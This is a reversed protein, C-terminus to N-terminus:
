LFTYVTQGDCADNLIDLIENVDNPMPKQWEFGGHGPTSEPTIHSVLMEPSNAITEPLFPAEEVSLIDLSDKARSIAVYFIHFEEKWEDSWININTLGMENLMKQSALAATLAAKAAYDSPLAVLVHKWEKGKAGHITSVSVKDGPDNDHGVETDVSDLWARISDHTECHTVITRTVMMTYGGYEKAVKECDCLDPNQLMRSIEKLDIKEDNCLRILVALIKKAIEGTSFSVDARQLLSLLIDRGVPLKLSSVNKVAETFSGSGNVLNGIKAAAVDGIGPFLIAVNMWFMPLGPRDLICLIDRFVKFLKAETIKPGGVVDYPINASTLALQLNQPFPGRMARLLIAIDKYAAGAKNLEQVKKVIAKKLADDNSYVCHVPTIKKRTSELLEDAYEPPGGIVAGNVVDIVNATSRYNESLRIEHPNWRDRFDNFVNRNVGRFGYISQKQDGVAFINGKIALLDAMKMQATDSDQFEDLMLFDINEAFAKGAETELIDCAQVILDDFSTLGALWKHKVFGACVDRCFKAPDEGAYPGNAMDVALIDLFSSTLIALEQETLVPLGPVARDMKKDMAARAVSRLRGYQITEALDRTHPKLIGFIDHWIKDNLFPKEPSGLKDQVFRFFEAKEEDPDIITLDERPGYARVLRVALSHFTGAFISGYSKSTKVLRQKMEAAAKRTFTLLCIRAPNVGAMCLAHARATMTHTKGTGPGATVLWAGERSLAAERQFHNLGSLLPDGSANVNVLLASPPIPAPKKPIRFRATEASM